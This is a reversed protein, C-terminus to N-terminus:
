DESSTSKLSGMIGSLLGYVMSASIMTMLASMDFASITLVEFETQPFSSLLVEFEPLITVNMQFIGFALIALSLSYTVLNSKVTMFKLIPKVLLAIVTFSLICMLWYIPTEPLYIGDFFSVSFIFIFMHLLVSYTSKKMYTNILINLNLISSRIMIKCAVAWM